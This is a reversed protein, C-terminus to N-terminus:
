ARSIRSAGSVRTRVLVIRSGKLGEVFRVTILLRDGAILETFRFAIKWVYEARESLNPADHDAHSECQGFPLVGAVSFLL